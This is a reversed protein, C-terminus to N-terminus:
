LVLMMELMTMVAMNQIQSAQLVAVEHMTRTTMMPTAPPAYTESWAGVDVFVAVSIRYPPVITPCANHVHRSRGQPM